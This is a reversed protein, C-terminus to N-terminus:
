RKCTSDPPCSIPDAMTLTTPSITICPKLFPCDTPTFRLNEYQETHFLTQFIHFDYGRIKLTTVSKLRISHQDLNDDMTDEDEENSSSVNM